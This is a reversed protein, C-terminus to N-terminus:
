RNGGSFSKSLARPKFTKPSPEYSIKNRYPPNGMPPLGEDILKRRADLPTPAFMLDWDLPIPQDLKAHMTLDHDETNTM